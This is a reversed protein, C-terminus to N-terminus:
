SKNEGSKTLTQIRSRLIQSVQNIHPFHRNIIVVTISNHYTWTHLITVHLLLNVSIKGLIFAAHRWIFLLDTMRKQRRTSLICPKNYVYIQMILFSEIQPNEM